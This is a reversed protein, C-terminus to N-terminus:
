PRSSMFVKKSAHDVSLVRADIGGVFVGINPAEWSHVAYKVGDKRHSFIPSGNKQWHWSYAGEPVYMPQLLTHDAPLNNYESLQPNLQKLTAM